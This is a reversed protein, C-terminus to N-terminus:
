VTHTFFRVLISSNHPDDYVAPEIIDKYAKPNLTKPITSIEKM